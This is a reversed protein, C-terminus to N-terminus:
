MGHDSSLLNLLEEVKFPKLLVSCKGNELYQRSISDEILGTLFIIPIDATGPNAKIKNATQIGNMGPMAIDMLIVDPLYKCAKEFGSQGDSASIAEFGHMWLRKVIVESVEKDDDIMLIKKAM